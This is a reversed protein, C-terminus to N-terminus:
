YIRHCACPACELQYSLYDGNATDGDDDYDDAAAAAADAALCNIKLSM